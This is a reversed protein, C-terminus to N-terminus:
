SNVLILKGHIQRKSLLEIAKLLQNRWVNDLGLSIIKNLLDYRNAIRDFMAGSGDSDGIQASNYRPQSQNM